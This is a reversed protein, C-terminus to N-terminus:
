PSTRAQARTQAVTPTFVVFRQMHARAAPPHPWVGLVPAKRKKRSKPKAIQAVSWPLPACNLCFASTNQVGPTLDRPTKRKDKKPNDQAHPAPHAEANVEVRRKKPKSAKAAPAVARKKAPEPKAKPKKPKLPRTPKYVTKIGACGPDRACPEAALRSRWGERALSQACRGEFCAVVHFVGRRLPSEPVYSVVCRRKRLMACLLVQPNEQGATCARRAGSRSGSRCHWAGSPCRFFSDRYAASHM